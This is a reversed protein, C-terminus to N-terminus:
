SLKVLLKRWSDQLAPDVGRDGPIFSKTIRISYDKLRRLGFVILALMAPFISGKNMFYSYQIKALTWRTKALKKWDVKARQRYAFLVTDLNLFKSSQYARLLLEQDECMYPGPSAYRFERFWETRGMWAPHPMYFGRWPTSCIEDHSRRFPLMGIAVNGEDIIMARVAVLHLASDSHLKNLQLELRQPFSVDDQDMRAIFMGRAMDICENLRIALGRNVGDVKIQIRSDNLDAISVISNDTSGDDIIILEWDEYTQNLISSVALRLHQGANYIPMAITINPPKSNSPAASIM